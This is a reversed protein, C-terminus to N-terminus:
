TSFKASGQWGLRNSWRNAASGKFLVEGFEKATNSVVLKYMTRELRLDYQLCLCMVQWLALVISHDKYFSFGFERPVDSHRWRGAFLSDSGKNLNFYPRIKTERWSTHKMNLMLLLQVVKFNMLSVLEHSSTYGNMSSGPLLIAGNPITWNVRDVYQDHPLKFEASFELLGDNRPRRLIM